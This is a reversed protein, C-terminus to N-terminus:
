NYHKRYVSSTCTKSLVSVNGNEAVIVRGLSKIFDFPVAFCRISM